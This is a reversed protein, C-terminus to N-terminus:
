QAMTSVRGPPPMSRAMTDTPSGKGMVQAFSSRGHRHAFSEAPRGSSFVQRSDRLALLATRARISDCQGYPTRLGYKLRWNGGEIANTSVPGTFEGAEEDWFTPNSEKLEGVLETYLNEYEEELYEHLRDFEGAERLEKVRGDRRTRNRLRHVLCKVRDPLINNYADNDDTLWYDVGELPTVLALALAWAFGTERCQLSAFCGLPCLYSAGLTFGEPFPKPDEGAQKRRRNEERLEKKAGKKAPYTEDAVGVLGDIGEDALEESYEERFEEATDVGFLFSLFNISVPTDAIKVGHQDALRDGFLKAYRRVTDRDVQMGLQHLHKEVRNYPNEAALYLCLDVIPKGYLCEEYFLESVDAPVSKVCDNCWYRQYEVTIEEFGDETILRAFTRERVHHKRYNQGGCHPCPQPTDLFTGEYSRCRARIGQLLFDPALDDPSKPKPPQM